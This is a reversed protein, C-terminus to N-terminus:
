HNSHHYRQFSRGHSPPSMAQHQLQTRVHTKIDDRHLHSLWLLEESAQLMQETVLVGAQFEAQIIHKRQECDVRRASELQRVFAPHSCWRIHAGSTYLVICICKAKACVCGVPTTSCARHM